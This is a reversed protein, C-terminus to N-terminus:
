ELGIQTESEPRQHVEGGEEDDGCTMDIWRVASKANTRGIERDTPSVQYAHFLLM